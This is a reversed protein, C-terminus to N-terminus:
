GLIFSILSKGIKDKTVEVTNARQRAQKVARILKDVRELMSAKDSASIAGSWIRKVFKGIDMVEEWKEVQAPHEKTPEVLVSHKFTKATRMKTEPNVARYVHQGMETDKVYEVGQTLTPAQALVSRLYALRKELNLLFTAPVDAAIVTGDEVVIDGKAEKNALEKQYTVDLLSILHGCTYELRDPVTTALKRIEEPVDTYGEVTDELSRKFGIFLEKRKNFDTITEQAISKYVTDLEGEVALIEHLKGM